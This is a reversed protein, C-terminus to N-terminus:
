LIAPSNDVEERIAAMDIRSNILPRNGHDVRKEVPPPTTYNKTFLQTLIIEPHEAAMVYQNEFPLKKAKGLAEKSYTAKKYPHCSGWNIYHTCENKEAFMVKNMLTDITRLSIFSLLKLFAYKLPNSPRYKHEGEKMRSVKFAKLFYLNLHLANQMARFLKRNPNSEDLFFVDLSIDSYETEDDKFCLKIYECLFYPDEERTHLILEPPLIKKCTSVFLDYYKRPMMCDIDDDWPIFGKHRIAGLCTGASAYYTIGAAECVENFHKLLYLLLYKAETKDIKQDNM